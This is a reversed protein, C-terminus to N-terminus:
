KLLLVKVGAQGANTHLRGFYVGSPLPRGSNDTGNWDIVHRGAPLLGDHLHRVRRGSLDFVDLDVPGDVTTNFTFATQPNFPNPYAGLGQATTLEPLVASVPERCYYFSVPDGALVYDEWAAFLGAGGPEAALVAFDVDDATNVRRRANFTNGDGSRLYVTMPLGGTSEQTLLRFVGPDAAAVTCRYIQGDGLRWRVPGAVGGTMLMTHLLPDTGSNDLIFSFLIRDDGDWAVSPSSLYLGWYMSEPTQWTGAERYQRCVERLGPFWFNRVFTLVYGDPGLCLDPETAGAGSILDTQSGLGGDSGTMGFLWSEGMIDSAFVIMAEGTGDVAVTPTRVGDTITQSFHQHGRLYHIQETVGDDSVYVVHRTGDPGLAFALDRLPTTSERLRYSTGGEDNGVWVNVSYTGTGNEYALWGYHVQGTADFAAKRQSGASITYVDPLGMPQDGGCGPAPGVGFADELVAAQTGDERCVLDYGGLEATALDVIAGFVTSGGFVLDTLAVPAVGDRELTFTQDPELYDGGVLVGLVEGPAGGDPWIATLVPAPPVDGTAGIGAGYIYNRSYSDEYQTWVVQGGGSGDAVIVPLEVRWDALDLLLTWWFGDVAWVVNALSDVRRASIAHCMGDGIESYYHDQYTLLFGGFGDPTISPHQQWGALSTLTVGGSGWLLTGAADVRQVSLDEVGSVIYFGGTADTCAVPRAPYPYTATNHVTIGGTTWQPTGASDLRQVTADGYGTSMVFFVDGSGGAVLDVLSGQIGFAMTVGGSGWLRQGAGSIRQAHHTAGLIETSALFVGGQGDAVANWPDPGVQVDVDFGAATQWLVSLYSSVRSAYLPQDPYANNVTNVLIVDGGEQPILVARHDTHATGLSIVVVKGDMVGAPTFKAVSLYGQGGYNERYACYAGGDGTPALALPGGQAETSVDWPIFIGGDGWVENGTHDIRTLHVRVPSATVDVAAVLSGGQGDSCVQRYSTTSIPEILSAWDGNEWTAAAPGALITALALLVVALAPLVRRRNSANDTFPM